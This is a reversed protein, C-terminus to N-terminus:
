PNLKIDMLKFLTKNTIGPYEKKLEPKKMKTIRILNKCYNTRIEEILVSFDTENNNKGKFYEVINSYLICFLECAESCQGDMEENEGYEMFLHYYKDMYTIEDMDVFNDWKIFNDNLVLDCYFVCLNRRSENEKNIKCFEDYDKEPNGIRIDNINIKVNNLIYFLQEFNNDFWLYLDNDLNLFDLIFRAYIKSYFSNSSVIDFIFNIITSFNIYSYEKSEVANSIKEFISNKMENYSEVTMKNLMSRIDDLLKEIGEKKEKQTIKFNRMAEWDDDSLETNKHNRNRNFNDRQINIDSVSKNSIYEDKSNKTSNYIFKITDTINKPIQIKMTQRIKNFDDLTYRKVNINVNQVNNLEKNKINKNVKLSFDKEM